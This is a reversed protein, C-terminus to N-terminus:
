EGGAYKEFEAAGPSKKNWSTYKFVKEQDKEPSQQNGKYGDSPKGTSKLVVIGTLRPLKKAICYEQIPDLPQGVSRANLGIAEGIEAYRMIRKKKAASVLVPWMLDAYEARKKAKM